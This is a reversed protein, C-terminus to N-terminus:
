CTGIDNGEGMEMHGKGRVTGANRHKLTGRTLLVKTVSNPVM